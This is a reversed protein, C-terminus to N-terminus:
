GGSGGTNGPRNVESALGIQLGRMAAPLLAITTPLQARIEVFNTLLFHPVLMALGFIALM